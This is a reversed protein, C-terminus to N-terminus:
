AQSEPLYGSMLPLSPRGGRGDKGEWGGGSPPAGIRLGGPRWRSVCLAQLPRQVRLAAVVQLSSDDKM